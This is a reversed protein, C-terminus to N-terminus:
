SFYSQSLYMYMADASKFYSKNVGMKKIGITVHLKITKISIM